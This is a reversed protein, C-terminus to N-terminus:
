VIVSIEKQISVLNEIVSKGELLKELDEKSRIVSVGRGDYGETCLKQVFPFLINEVAIADIISKKDNVIKFDSTPLEYKKYFEKQRGKDKITEIVDPSPSVVKGEKQLQRLAETNVNE